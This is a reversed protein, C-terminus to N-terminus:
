RGIAARAADTLRALDDPALEVDFGRRGGSVFVTHHEFATADLVTPLQKRQGLPSIAGRVYGTAREAEAPEAMATRKEGLASAVAKLDLSGSVPVIAVAHGGAHLRVLLTKLIRHPDVALAVAAEDGYSTTTRDHEYTHAVYDVGARALARTAPTGPM